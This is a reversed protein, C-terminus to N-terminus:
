ESGIVGANLLALTVLRANFHERWGSPAALGLRELYPEAAPRHQRLRPAQRAFTRLLGTKSASSLPKLASILTLEIDTFECGYPYRPYYGDDRDPALWGGVADPTNSRARQPIRYDPSLKGAAVAASRLKNQFRADAVEILAIAVQEDTKGRLDAVGYETVVIDRLHRPITNYGYHAVINSEPGKSGSRVARVCIVSRAGSLEHAQAVFNYQGGVGSLVQGSELGDSAIAGDLSAKIATNVFRAHRRQARKLEEQGYLHNIAGIGTMHFQDRASIDLEHLHAYFSSPGLFFGGHVLTPGALHMGLCRAEIESRAERDALDPTIPAEGDGPDLRDDAWHVHEAFVGIRKLWATDAAELRAWIAGAELLATLTRPGVADDIAGKNLLRQVTLDDYVARRIVGARHLQVYGDVLMETCGYLGREFPARGGYAAVLAQESESAPQREILRQFRPNDNHRLDLCYAIADSLSGIGIQLTGGDAILTSVRAAIAYDADSVAEHPTGFPKFNAAPGEFLADLRDAEVLASRTMTPLQHNLQAVVLPAQGAERLREVEPMLDLTVDTNCSLSVQDDALGPAVMQMLVNVGAAMLDRAAHTYNVSRYHRQAYRNGLMAGPQFFFESVTVNDPLAGRKLDRLYDLGPYDEFLREAIPQMLRREIDGSPQPVDLSLATIITLEISPDAKVRQYLANMLTAAKGLGLPAGLRIDPGVREILWDVLAEVDEFREPRRSM